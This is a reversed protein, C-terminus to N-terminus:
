KGWGKPMTRHTSEDDDDFNNTIINKIGVLANIHFLYLIVPIMLMIRVILPSLKNDETFKNWANCYDIKENITGDIPKFDDPRENIEKECDVKVLIQELTNGIFFSSGLSLSLFITFTIIFYKRPTIM